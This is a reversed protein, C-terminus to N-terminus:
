CGQRYPARLGAGVSWIYHCMPAYGTHVVEDNMGFMFVNEFYRETLARLTDMSKLNIHGARSPPSAYASATINPTGMILVGNPALCRVINELFTGERAPDVHEIVDIMFAAEVRIAPATENVDVHQYTVNKLHALRRANGEVLRADWDIAYVKSIAQAMIPLGFGDGAGIEMVSKKGHLMKACFKYRALVFCMHKPDHVLSYSTWPGLPIEAPAFLMEATRAYVETVAASAGTTAGNDM